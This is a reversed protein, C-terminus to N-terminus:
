LVMHVRDSSQLEQHIAVLQEEGTATIVVTVAVFTGKGSERVTVQSEDIDGAHKRMVDIVFERFGESQRGLTKIPYSCPFEIKPPAQESM